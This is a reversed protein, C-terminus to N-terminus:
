RVMLMRQYEVWKTISQQFWLYQTKLLTSMRSSLQLKGYQLYNKLIKEEGLHDFKLLVHDKNEGCGRGENIEQGMSRSVFDKPALDKLTPAYREMFREGDSNLLVGGRGECRRYDFRRGWCCRNSSVALIGYRTLTHRSEDGYRSWRGYQHFCQHIMGWIRGAGGTALVTAKSEFFM